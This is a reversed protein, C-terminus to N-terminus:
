SECCLTLTIAASSSHEEGHIILDDILVMRSVTASIGRLDKMELRGSNLSSWSPTEGPWGRKSSRREELFFFNSKM